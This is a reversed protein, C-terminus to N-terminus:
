SHKNGPFLGVVAKAIEGIVMAYTAVQDATENVRLITDTTDQTITDIAEGAEHVRQKIERSIQVANETTENIRPVSLALMELDQRHRNVIDSIQRTATNFSRLTLIAYVGVGVALLFLIVMGLESFTISTAM